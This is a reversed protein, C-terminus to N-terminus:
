LTACLKARNTRVFIIHRLFFHKSNFNNLCIKAHLGADLILKDKKLAAYFKLINSLRFPSFHEIHAYYATKYM